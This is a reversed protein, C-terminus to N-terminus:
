AAEVVRVMDEGVEGRFRRLLVERQALVRERNRDKVHGYGRLRATDNVVEM